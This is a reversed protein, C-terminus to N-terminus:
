QNDCFGARIDGAVSESIIGMSELDDVVAVARDWAEWAEKSYAKSPENNDDNWWAELAEEGAELVAAYEPTHYPGVLGFHRRLFSELNM